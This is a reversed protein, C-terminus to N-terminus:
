PRQQQMATLQQQYFTHVLPRQDTKIKNIYYLKLGNWSLAKWSQYNYHATIAKIEVLMEEFSLLQTVNTPSLGYKDCFAAKNTATTVICINANHLLNLTQTTIKDELTALYMKSSQIRQAEEIVEQWRERLTTKASILATKTPEALYHFTSPVVLDVAKKKGIGGIDGQLVVPIGATNLLLELLSEFERGARSRRSQTNSLALDYFYDQMCEAILSQTQEPSLPQLMETPLLQKILAVCLNKECERYQEWTKTRTQEVVASAQNLVLQELSLPHNASLMNNIVWCFSSYVMQEPLPTYQYRLAKIQEKFADPTIPPQM